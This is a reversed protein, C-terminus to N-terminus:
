KRLDVLAQRKEVKEVILLITINNHGKKFRQNMVLVLFRLQTLLKM